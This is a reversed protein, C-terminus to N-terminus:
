RSVSVTLGLGTELCLSNKLYVSCVARSAELQPIRPIQFRLALGVRLSKFSLGRRCQVCTKHAHDNGLSLRFTSLAKALGSTYVMCYSRHCFDTKYLPVHVRTRCPRVALVRGVDEVRLGSSVFPLM